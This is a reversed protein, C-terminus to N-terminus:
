DKAKKTKKKPKDQEQQYAILPDIYIKNFEAEVDYGYVNSLFRAFARLVDPWREDGNFSAYQTLVVDPYARYEIGDYYGKQEVHFMFHTNENDM